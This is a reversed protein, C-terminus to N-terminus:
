FSSEWIGLGLRHFGKEVCELDRVVDTAGTMVLVKKGFDELPDLYRVVDTVM